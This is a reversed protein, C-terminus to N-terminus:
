MLHKSHGGETDVRAELRKRCQCDCLVGRQPSIRLLGCTWTQVHVTSRRYCVGSATSPQVSPLFSQVVTLLCSLQM